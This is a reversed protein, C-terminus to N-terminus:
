IIDLLRLTQVGKPSIRVAKWNGEEPVVEVLEKEKLDIIEKDIDERKIRSILEEKNMFKDFHELGWTYLIRLIRRQIDITDEM